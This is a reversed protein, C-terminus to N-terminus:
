GISLANLAIIQQSGLTNDPPEANLNELDGLSSQFEELIM